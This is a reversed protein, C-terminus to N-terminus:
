VACRRRSDLAPRAPLGAASDSRLASRVNRSTDRAGSPALGTRLFVAFTNLLTTYM